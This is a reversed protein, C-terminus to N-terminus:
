EARVGGLTTTCAMGCDALGTAYQPSSALLMICIKCVVRYLAYQGTCHTTGDMAQLETHM